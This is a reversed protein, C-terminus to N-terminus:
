ANYEIDNKTMGVKELAAFVKAHNEVIPSRYGCAKCVYPFSDRGDRMIQWRIVWNKQGCKPCLRDIIASHM